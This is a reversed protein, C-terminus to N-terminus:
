EGKLAWFEAFVSAYNCPFRLTASFRPMRALSGGGRDTAAVVTQPLWWPRATAAVV